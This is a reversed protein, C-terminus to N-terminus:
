KICHKFDLRGKSCSMDREALTLPTLLQSWFTACFPHGIYGLTSPLFDFLFFRNEQEGFLKKIFEIANENIAEPQIEFLARVSADISKPTNVLEHLYRGIRIPLIAALCRCIDEHLPHLQKQDDVFLRSIVEDSNLYDGSAMNIQNIIYHAIVYGALVDHTFYLHEQDEGWDRYVLLGEDEM